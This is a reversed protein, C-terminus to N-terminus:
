PRLRPPGFYKLRREANERVAPDVDRLSVVREWADLARSKEGLKHEVDGYHLWTQASEPEVRLLHELHAAAQPYRKQTAAVLALGELARPHDPAAATAASFWHEADDQHGGSYLAEGLSSLLDPDGPCMQVAQQLTEAAQAYRGDTCHRAALSRLEDLKDLEGFAYSRPVSEPGHDEPMPAVPLAASSNSEAPDAAPQSSPACVPVNLLDEFARNGALDTAVIRLDVPGTLDPPVQWTFEPGDVAAYARDVWTEDGRARSFVRLPRAGLHEDILSLRLSFRSGATLQPPESGRHLQLAPAITDVLVQSQPEAGSAPPDASAGASNHLVVYFGYWGDEPAQFVVTQRGHQEVPEQNWTKGGDRTFWVEVQEIPAQNATTYALLLERAAVYRVDAGCAFSATLLVSGIAAHRM